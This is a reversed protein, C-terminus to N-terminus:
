ESVGLSVVYGDSNVALQVIRALPLPTNPPSVLSNLAADSLVVEDGSEVRILAGPVVAAQQGIASSTDACQTGSDWPLLRCGDPLEQVGDWPIVQDFTILAWGDPRLETQTVLVFNPNNPTNERITPLDPSRATSPASPTASTSPTPQLSEVEVDSPELTFLLSGPRTASAPCAVASPSRTQLRDTSALASDYTVDTSAAGNCGRIVYSAGDPRVYVTILNGDGLRLTEFAADAANVPFAAAAGYAADMADAVSLLDTVITTEPDTNSASATPSATPSAPESSESLPDETTTVSPSTLPAPADDGRDLLWLTVAFALGGILLIGVVTAIALL